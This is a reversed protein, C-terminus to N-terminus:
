FCGPTFAPTTDLSATFAFPTFRGVVGSSGDNTGDGVIDANTDGLYNTADAQLTM